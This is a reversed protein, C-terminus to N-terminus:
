RKPAAEQLVSMINGAPDTFWAILPGQGRAIGKADQKFGDYKEFRVGKAALDDVTKEIDAVAFNLVTFSAPKHGPGKPYIMVRMDSGLHLMLTKMEQNETVELGLTKEYFQRAKALDDVSFSAYAKAGKMVMTSSM